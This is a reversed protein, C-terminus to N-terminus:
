GKYTTVPAVPVKRVASVVGRKRDLKANAEEVIAAKKAHFVAELGAISDDAEQSIQDFEDDNVDGGGPPAGPDDSSETEHTAALAHGKPPKAAVVSKKAVPKVSYAAGVALLAAGGLLFLHHNQISSSKGVPVVGAAERITAPAHKAPTYKSAANNSLSM